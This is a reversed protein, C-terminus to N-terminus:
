LTALSLAPLRSFAGSTASAEATIELPGFVAGLRAAMLLLGASEYVIAKM